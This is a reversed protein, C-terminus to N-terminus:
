VGRLLIGQFYTSTAGSARAIGSTGTQQTIYLEVYDTTGNLFTIGTVGSLYLAGAYNGGPPSRQFITGNKYLDVVVTGATNIGSCGSFWYYGAVNPQFRYNTVNDFANNTDFIKTDFNIKTPTINALSQVGTGYVSFAPGYGSKPQVSNDPFTVGNNGDIIMTM